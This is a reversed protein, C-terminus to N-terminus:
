AGKHLGKKDNGTPKFIFFFTKGYFIQLRGRGEERTFILLREAVRVLVRIVIVKKNASRAETM